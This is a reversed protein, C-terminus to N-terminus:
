GVEQPPRTNPSSVVEQDAHATPPVLSPTHVAHGRQMIFITMSVVGLVVGIAIGLSLIATTGDWTVASGLFTVALLVAVVGLLREKLDDLTAIRLWAPMPLHPDIFLEYLGIAVIYLVTGLLFLDIMTVLDVSLLKAGKQSFEPTYFTTLVIMVTALGGYTMAAASAIFSGLVAIIIFFRSWGLVRSVGRM